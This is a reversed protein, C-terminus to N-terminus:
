GKSRRGELTALRWWLLYGKRDHVRLLLTKQRTLTQGTTKKDPSYFRPYLHGSHALAQLWLSGPRSCTGAKISTSQRRTMKTATNVATATRNNEERGVSEMSKRSFSDGAIDASTPCFRRLFFQRYYCLVRRNKHHQCSERRWWAACGERSNVRTWETFAFCDGFM